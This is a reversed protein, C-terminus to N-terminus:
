GTAPNTNDGNSDTWSLESRVSAQQSLTEYAQEITEEYEPMRDQLAELGELVKVTAFSSGYEEGLEDQLEEETYDEGLSEVTDNYFEEFENDVKEVYEELTLEEDLEGEEYLAVDVGEKDIEMEVGYRDLLVNDDGIDVTETDQSTYGEPLQDEDIVNLLVGELSSSEFEPIIGAEFEYDDGYFDKLKVTASNKPAEVSANYTEVKFEKGHLHSREDTGFDKAATKAKMFEKLVAKQVIHDKEEDGYEPVMLVNEDEEQKTFVLEEAGERILLTKWDEEGTQIQGEERYRDLIEDEFEFHDEAKEIWNEIEEENTSRGASIDIMGKSSAGFDRKPGYLSVSDEREVVTMMGGGFGRIKNDGETLDFDDKRENELAENVEDWASEFEGRDHVDVAQDFPLKNGFGSLTIELDNGKSDIEVDALETLDSPALPFTEAEGEFVYTDGNNQNATASM